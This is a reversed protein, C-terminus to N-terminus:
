KQERYPKDINHCFRFGKGPYQCFRRAPTVTAPFEKCSQEFENGPPFRVPRQTSADTGIYEVPQRFVRQVSEIIINCATIPTGIQASTRLRSPFSQHHAPLFAAPRAHMGMGPEGSIEEGVALKTDFLEISHPRAPCTQPFRDDHISRDAKIGDSLITTKFIMYVPNRTQTRRPVAQMDIRVIRQTTRDIRLFRLYAASQHPATQLEYTRRPIVPKTKGPAAAPSSAPLSIDTPLCEPDNRAQPPAVETPQATHYLFTAETPLAASSLPFNSASRRIGRQRHPPTGSARFM